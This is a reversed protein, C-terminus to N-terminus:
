FPILISESSIICSSDPFDNETLVTMPAIVYKTLSIRKTIHLALFKLCVEVYILGKQYLCTLPMQVEWSYLQVNAYCASM